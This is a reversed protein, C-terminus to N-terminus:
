NSCIVIRNRITQFVMGDHLNATDIIPTSGDNLTNKPSSPVKLDNRNDKEIASHRRRKFPHQRKTVSSDTCSDNKKRKGIHNLESVPEVAPTSSPSSAFSFHYRDIIEVRLRDLLLDRDVTSITRTEIPGIPSVVLELSKRETIKRPLVLTRTNKGNFTSQQISPPTPLSPPSEIM